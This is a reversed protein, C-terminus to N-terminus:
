AGLGALFELVARNFAEPQDRNPFRGAPSLLVREAHTITKAMIRMPGLSPDEDGCVLLTSVAIEPLPETISDMQLPARLATASGIPTLMRYMAFVDERAGPDLTIRGSVNPNSAISDIRVGDTTTVHAM